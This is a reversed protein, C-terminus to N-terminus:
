GTFDPLRLLLFFGQSSFGSRGAGQLSRIRRRVGALVIGRLTEIDQEDVRRLRPLERRIAM